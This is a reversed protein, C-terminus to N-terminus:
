VLNKYVNLGTYMRPALITTPLLLFPGRLALGTRGGTAHEENESGQLGSSLGFLRQILPMLRLRASNLSQTSLGNDSKPLDKDAELEQQTTQPLVTQGPIYTCAVLTSSTLRTGLSCKLFGFLKCDKM